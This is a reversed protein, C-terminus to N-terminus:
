GHGQTANIQAPIKPIASKLLNVVVVVVVVVTVAVAIAPTPDSAM